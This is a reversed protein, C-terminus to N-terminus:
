SSWRPAVTPLDPDPVDVPGYTYTEKLDPPTDVGYTAANSELGPGVWGRYVDGVAVREKAETPQHYFRLAEERCRAIVEPPIGHNVVVLFGLRRLHGDIEAAVRARDEDTGEYWPALDILPISTM